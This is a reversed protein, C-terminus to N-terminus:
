KVGKVVVLEIVPNPWPRFQFPEFQSSLHAVSALNSTEHARETAAAAMQGM